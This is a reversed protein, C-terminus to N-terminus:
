GKKYLFFEAIATEDKVKNKATKKKKYEIVKEWIEILFIYTDHM